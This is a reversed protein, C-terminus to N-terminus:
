FFPPISLASRVVPFWAASSGRQLARPTLSCGQERGDRGLWPRAGGCRVGVERMAWRGFAGEMSVPPKGCTCSIVISSLSATRGTTRLSLRHGAGASPEAPSTKNHVWAWYPFDDLHGHECAVVFRSPTLDGGCAACESKGRPSNFQRFPRLNQECCPGCKSREPPSGHTCGPCSYMDPFRRIRVGDGAPPDSAPPLHFGHVDLRRELRFEFLDPKDPVKWTDLGSVIFSQDEFAVLSGVGYTTILQSRRVAGLRTRTAEKEFGQKRRGSGGRLGMESRWTSTPSWTSM